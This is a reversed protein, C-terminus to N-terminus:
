QSMSPRSSSPDLPVGGHYVGANLLQDYMEGYVVVVSEFLAAGVVVVAESVGAVVVVVAESLAAVVVVVAESLPAAGDVSPESEEDFPLLEAGASGAAM